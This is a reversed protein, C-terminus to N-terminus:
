RLSYTYGATDADVRDASPSRVLEDSDILFATTAPCENPRGSSSLVRVIMRQTVQGVVKATMSPYILCEDGRTYGAVGETNLVRVYAHMVLTHVSGTAPLTPVNADEFADTSMAVVILTAFAGLMLMTVHTFLLKKWSTM